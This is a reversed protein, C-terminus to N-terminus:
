NSKKFYWILIFDTLQRSYGGIGGAEPYKDVSERGLSVKLRVFETLLRCYNVEM